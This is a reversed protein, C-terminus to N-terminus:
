LGSYRNESPLVGKIKTISVDSNQSKGAIAFALYFNMVCPLYYFSMDLIFAIFM